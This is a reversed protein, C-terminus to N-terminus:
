LSKKPASVATRRSTSSSGRRSRTTTLRSTTRRHVNRRHTPPSHGSRSSTASTGTPRTGFGTTRTTSLRSPPAHHGNQTSKRSARRLLRLLDTASVTHPSPLNFPVKKAVCRVKLEQGKRIKCLLVPPVNPDETKPILTQSSSPRSDYICVRASPCALPIRAVSWKTAATVM